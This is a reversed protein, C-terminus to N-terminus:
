HVQASTLIGADSMAEAMAQAKPVRVDHEAVVKGDERVIIQGGSVMKRRAGRRGADPKAMVLDDLHDAVLTYVEHANAKTPEMGMVSLGRIIERIALATREIREMDGEDVLKDPHYKWASALPVGFAGRAVGRHLPWVFLAPEDHLYQL